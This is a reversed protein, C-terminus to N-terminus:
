SAESVRTQQEIYDSLSRLTAFVSRTAEDEARLHVDYRQAVAVAIELADISDLALGGDFLRETPEIDGPAVEELNLADVILTALRHEAESQEAM